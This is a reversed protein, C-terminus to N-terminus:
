RPLTRPRQMCPADHVRAHIRKRDPRDDFHKNNFSPDQARLSIRRLHQVHIGDHHFLDEPPRQSVGRDPDDHHKVRPDTGGIHIQSLINTIEPVEAVETEQFNWTPERNM